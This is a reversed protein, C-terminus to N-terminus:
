HKLKKEISKIKEDFHAKREPNLKRLQRYAAVAENLKGQGVLIGAFTESMLLAETPAEPTDDIHVGSETTPRVLPRERTLLSAVRALDFTTPERPQLAPDPLPMRRASPPTTAPGFLVALTLSDTSRPNAMPRIPSSIPESRDLSELLLAPRASNPSLRLAHKLATSAESLRGLALLAEGRVIYYSPYHEASQSVQELLGIAETALGRSVLGHAEHVASVPSLTATPRTPAYTTAAQPM